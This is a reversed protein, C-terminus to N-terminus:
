GTAHTYAEEIDNVERDWNFYRRAKRALRSAVEAMGQDRRQVAVGEILQALQFPETARVDVPMILQAERETCSLVERFEKVIKHYGVVATGRTLAEAYTLGFSESRSPVALVWSTDILANLQERDLYGMYEVSPNSEAFASVASALPGDGAIRLSGTVETSVIRWAELLSPIGKRESLSGVFCIGSRGNEEISSDGGSDVGHHVVRDPCTWRVGYGLGKRRDIHSVHIILNTDRYVENRHRLLRRRDSPAAFTIESYSHVTLVVPVDLDLGRWAVPAKHNIGQTHVVDYKEPDPLLALRYLTYVLYGRDWLSWMKKDIDVDWAARLASVLGGVSLTVGWVAIGDITRTRRLYRGTALIEVDHGARDLAKALDWTHRAVGGPNQSGLEPPVPGVLLVRM